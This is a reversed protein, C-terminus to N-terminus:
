VVARIERLPNSQWRRRRVIDFVDDVRVKIVPQANNDSARVVSPTMGAAYWAEYLAEAADAVADVCATAVRGVGTTQGVDWGPLYFRGWRKRIATEETVSISTQPPLGTGASTGPVDVTTSRVAPNPPAVALDYWRYQVIGVSDVIREDFAQFFSTFASECNGMKTADVSGSSAVFDHTTVAVDESYGEIVRAYIVQMRHPV